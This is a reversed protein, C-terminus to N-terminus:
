RTKPGPESDSSSHPAEKGLFEWDEREVADLYCDIIIRALERHRETTIMSQDEESFTEFNSGKFLVEFLPNPESALESM